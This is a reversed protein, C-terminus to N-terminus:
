GDQCPWMPQRSDDAATDRKWTMTVTYNAEMGASALVAGATATLKVGFAVTMEDPPEALGRLKSLLADAAPKVRELAEDLTRTAEAPKKWSRFAANEEGEEAPEDVEVLVTESGEGGLRFEVLRRLRGEQRLTVAVAYDPGAQSLGM